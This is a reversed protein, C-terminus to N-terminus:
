RKIKESETEQHVLLQVQNKNLEEDPLVILIEQLLVAFQQEKYKDDVMMM